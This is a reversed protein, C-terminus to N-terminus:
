TQGDSTGSGDDPGSSDLKPGRRILALLAFSTGILGISVLQSITFGTGMIASEDTRIIELLFRTVPYALLFVVVIQGNRTRYPFAFWLVASLLAANISSLLQTPQVPLSHQPLQAYRWGVVQGDDLEVQVLPTADDPRGRMAKIMKASESQIKIKDGVKISEKGALSDPNVQKVKRKGEILEDELELGLLRGNELQRMYPPSGPPFRLSWDGEAIGGYCCGNMLCGLRGLALGALLSPAILDGFALIPQKHHRLFFLAAPVGGLLAGYVVLGGETFSVVELWTDFQERYQIVFFIRAGLMAGCFMVFALSYILDPNLGLRRARLTAMGIGVICGFAVFTGYGRIPIGLMVETVPDKKELVPFLFAIVLSVVIALPLYEKIEEGRGTLKLRVIWAVCAVVWVTFLWGFGFTQLGFWGEHPVHVITERM